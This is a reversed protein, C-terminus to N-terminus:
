RKQANRVARNYQNVYDKMSIRPREPGALLIGGHFSSIHYISDPYSQALTNKITRVFPAEEEDRRSKRWSGISYHFSVGPTVLEPQFTHYQAHYTSLILAWNPHKRADETTYRSWYFDFKMELSGRDFNKSTAPMVVQNPRQRTRTYEDILQTM